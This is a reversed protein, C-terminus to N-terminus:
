PVPPAAAAVTFGIPVERLARLPMGTADRAPPLGNKALATCALQDLILNGSSAFAVCDTVNGASDTVIRVTVFPNTAAAPLRDIPVAFEVARDFVFQTKFSYEHHLLAAIPQGAADRAPRLRVRKLRGCAMEDLRATGSPKVVDCRVVQGTADVILDVEVKAPRVIGPLQAYDEGRTYPGGDLKVPMAMLTAVTLALLM